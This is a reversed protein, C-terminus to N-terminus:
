KNCGANTNDVVYKFRYKKTNSTVVVYDDKLNCDKELITLELYGRDALEQATLKPTKTSVAYTRDKATNDDDAESGIKKPYNDVNDNVYKNAASIILQEMSANVKDNGSDLVSIIAPFAILAIISIIVVSGILEILTFGNKKM